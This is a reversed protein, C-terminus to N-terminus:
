RCKNHVIYEETAEFEKRIKEIIPDLKKYVMDELEVLTIGLGKVKDEIGICYDGIYSSCAIIDYYKMTCIVKQTKKIKGNERYSKHISIRYAKKIPRIFRDGSYRYSYKINRELNSSWETCEIILGKYVGNTDEKRM